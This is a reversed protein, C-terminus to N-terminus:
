APLSSRSRWGDPLLPLHRRPEPPSPPWPAAHAIASLSRPSHCDQRAAWDRRWAPGAPEQASQARAPSRLRGLSRLGLAPPTLSRAISLGPAAPPLLPPGPPPWDPFHGRRQSARTTAASGATSGAVLLPVTRTRM